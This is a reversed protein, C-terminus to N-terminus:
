GVDGCILRDMPKGSGLDALVDDIARSQDETEAYPFRACFEDYLGEPPLMVQGPKIERHAATQILQGAIERIRQKVRAKRTQWGLGGLKDLQVAADESSYRSLVEINEVPVFLKDGGDYIVRLCDHPAGGVELTALGDYRGIGHDVHVVYDGEAYNALEALFQDPRKRKKAPRALRDGVIDPEAIIALEDTEFGRDLPLALLVVQDKPLEGLESWADIRHQRTLGHDALLHSLRDLSGATYGAIAVRWGSQQLGEIHTRVSDYLNVDSQTRAEVFDRGQRGGADLYSGAGEPAAFPTLSGTPRDRLLAEWAEADLYLRQPPLPRYPAGSAEEAKRYAIRAKHFDNILDLRADRAEEAQHDLTVAAGRLYDFLTELRDHFLPLWHEMGAYLRGASVAEYLPDDS